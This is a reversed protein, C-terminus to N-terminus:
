LILTQLSAAGGEGAPVSRLVFLGLVKQPGPPRSALARTAKDLHLLRVPPSMTCQSTSEDFWLAHNEKPMGVM